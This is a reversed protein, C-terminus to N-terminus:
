KRFGEKCLVILMSLTFWVVMGLLLCLGFGTEGDM